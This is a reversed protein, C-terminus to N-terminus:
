STLNTLGTQGIDGAKALKELLRGGFPLLSAIAPSPDPM